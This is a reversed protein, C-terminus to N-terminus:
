QVPVDIGYTTKIAAASAAAPAGSDEVYYAAGYCPLLADGEYIILPGDYLTM